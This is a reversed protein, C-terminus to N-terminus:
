EFRDHIDGPYGGLCDFVARLLNHLDAFVLRNFKDQVDSRTTGAPSVMLLTDIITPIFQTIQLSALMGFALRLDNATIAEMPPELSTRSKNQRALLAPFDIHGKDTPKDFTAYLILEPWDGILSYLKASDGMPVAVLEWVTKGVPYTDPLGFMKNESIQALVSGDAFGQESQKEERREAQAKVVEAAETDEEEIVFSPHSLADCEARERKLKAVGEAIEEDTMIVKPWLSKDETTEDNPQVTKKKSM